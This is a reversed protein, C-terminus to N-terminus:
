GIWQGILYYLEFLLVTVLMGSILFLFRKRAERKKRIYTLKLNKLWEGAATPTAKTEAAISDLLTRDISHGVASVVPIKCRAVARVVDENNFISLDEGGAQAVIILDPNEMIFGCKEIASILAQPTPEDLEIVTDTIDLTGESELASKIDKIARSNKPTIIAIRSPPPDTAVKRMGVQSLLGEAALDEFLKDLKKHFDGQEDSSEISNVSLEVQSKKEYVHFRAGIRVFSGTRIPFDIKGAVEPAVTCYLRADGDSIYFSMWGSKGRDDYLNEIYGAISLEGEEAIAKELLEFIRKRLRSPSYKKNMM